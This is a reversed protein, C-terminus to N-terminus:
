RLGLSYRPLKPLPTEPLLRMQSNSHCLIVSLSSRCVSPVISRSEPIPGPLWSGNQVEAPNEPLSPLPAEAESLRRSLRHPYRGFELM